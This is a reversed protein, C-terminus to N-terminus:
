RWKKADCDLNSRPICFITKVVKYIMIVICGYVFMRTLSTCQLYFNVYGQIWAFLISGVMGTGGLYWLLWNLLLDDEEFAFCLSELWCWIVQVLIGCKLLRKGLHTMVPRQVFDNM